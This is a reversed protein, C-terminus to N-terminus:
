AITYAGDYIAIYKTDTKSSETLVKGATGSGTGTITAYPGSAPASSLFSFTHVLTGTHTSDQTVASSLAETLGTTQFYVKGTGTLEANTPITASKSLGATPVYGESVSASHTVSGATKTGEALTIYYSTATTSTTIGTATATVAVKAKTESSATNGHTLTATNVPYYQATANASRASHATWGTTGAAESATGEVKIYYGSAPASDAATGLTINGGGTATASLTGRSGGKVPVYASTAAAAGVTGTWNTATYHETDGYGNVNVNPEITLTNTSADADIRIYAGSTPKTTTAAGNAADTWTDSTPKATRKLTPKKTLDGSVTNATLGVKALSHTESATGGSISGETSSIYGASSVTPTDVNIVCNMDFVGTSSNYEPSSLQHTISGSGITVTANGMAGTLKEGDVTYAIKGTRIDTDATGATDTKGDLMQDLTIQTNPYYGENIYLSGKSPIVITTNETYTQGSTAKNDLVGSTIPVYYDVGTKKTTAASATIESAAGLYGATTVEKKTASLTTPPATARVAAYYGSTPKTTTAASALINDNDADIAVTPTTATSAFTVTAAAAPISAAVSATGTVNGDANLDTSAYGAKSVSAYSIGSIDASGTIPYSSGSKTGVTVSEITSAASAEANLEAAGATKATAAIVIDEDVYTGKTALTITKTVDASTVTGLDASIKWNKTSSDKTANAM